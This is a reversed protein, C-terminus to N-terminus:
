TSPQTDVVWAVNTSGSANGGSVKITVGNPGATGTINMTPDGGVLVTTKDPAKKFGNTETYQLTTEGDGTGDLSITANGSVLRPQTNRLFGYSTLGNGAWSLYSFVNTATALGGRKNKVFWTDVVDDLLLWGLTSAGLILNNKGLPNAKDGYASWLPLSTALLLNNMLSRRQQRKLAMAVMRRHKAVASHQGRLEKSIRKDLKNDGAVIRKSLAKDAKVQQATLRKIAASQATSLRKLAKANASTVRAQRKANANIRASLKNVSRISAPAPSIRMRTRRGNPLQATVVGSGRLRTVRRLKVRRGKGIKRFRARMRKM